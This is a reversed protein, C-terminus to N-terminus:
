SAASKLGAESFARQGDEAYLYGILSRLDSREAAVGIWYSTETNALPIADVGAVTGDSVYAIGADAEGNAIRAVLQRASTEWSIPHLREIGDLRSTYRGVPVEPAALVLREVSELSELSAIGLPNGTQVIIALQNFAVPRPEIEIMGATELPALTTRDAAILVDIPAGAIMAAVHTQSGAIDIEVEIGLTQEAGSEISELAGVLSSAGAIVISENGACGAFLIALMVVTGPRM